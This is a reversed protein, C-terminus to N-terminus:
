SVKKKDQIAIASSEQKYLGTKIFEYAKKQLYPSLIQGIHIGKPYVMTKLLHHVNLVEEDSLAYIQRILEDKKRQIGTIVAETDKLIYIQNLLENLESNNLCNITTLIIDVPRQVINQTDQFPNRNFTKKANRANKLHRYQIRQPPM